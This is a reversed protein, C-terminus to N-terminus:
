LQFEKPDYKKLAAMNFPIRMLPDYTFKRCKGNKIKKKLRCSVEGNTSLSNSCYDCSPEIDNNFYKLKSM